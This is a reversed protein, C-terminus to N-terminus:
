NDSPAVQSAAGDGHVLDLYATAIEYHAQVARNHSALRALEIQEEARRQYYELEEISV